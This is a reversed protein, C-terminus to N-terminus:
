GVNVTEGNVAVVQKLAKAHRDESKQFPNYVPPSTGRQMRLQADLLEIKAKCQSIEGAQKKVQRALNRRTNTLAQRFEREIRKYAFYLMGGFLSM